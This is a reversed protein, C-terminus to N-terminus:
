DWDTMSGDADGLVVSIDPIAMIGLKSSELSQEFGGVSLVKATYTNGNFTCGMQSLHLVSGDEISTIDLLILVPYTKSQQSLTSIPFTGTTEILGALTVEVNWTTAGTISALIYSTPNSGFSVPSATLVGATSIGIEWSTANTADNLVLGIWAGVSVPTSHLVGSDDITISWLQNSSDKLILPM